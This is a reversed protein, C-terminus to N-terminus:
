CGLIRVDNSGLQKVKELIRTQNQPTTRLLVGRFTEMQSARDLPSLRITQGVVIVRKVNSWEISTSSFGCRATASSETLSYTSGLWFEATTGLIAVAGVVGLIPSRFLFWGVWMVGAAVAFIVYPKSRDEDSLRIFWSFSAGAESNAPNPGPIPGMEDVLPNSDGTM